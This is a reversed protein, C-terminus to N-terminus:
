AAEVFAFFKREAADIGYLVACFGLWLISFTGFFFFYGSFCISDRCLVCDMVSSFAQDDNPVVVGMELWNGEMRERCVGRVLFRLDSM